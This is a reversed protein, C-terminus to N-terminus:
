NMATICICHILCAFGIFFVNSCAIVHRSPYKSTTVTMEAKNSQVITKNVELLGNTEGCCM